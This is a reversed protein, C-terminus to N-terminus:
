AIPQMNRDMRLRESPNIWPSSLQIAMSTGAAILAGWPQPFPILLHVISAAIASWLVAWFSFRTRRLPDVQKWWGVLGMVLPFYALYAPLLPNKNQDFFGSWHNVPIDTLGQKTIESWPVMLFEALVFALAGIAFGATLQVFSRIAWDGEEVQWRKGLGIAIWAMPLAILAAWIMGILQPQAPAGWGIQFVVALASFVAIVSSAGLWSATVESWVSGRPVQALSGRRAVKWQRHSLPKNAAVPRPRPAERMPSKQPAVHAQPSASAAPQMAVPQMAYAQVHQGRQHQPQTPAPGSFLWWLCYYPVYLMLGMILMSLIAGSNIAAFVIAVVLLATKMGSNMNLEAWWRNLGIWGDRLNRAVPERYYVNAYQQADANAKPAQRFKPPEQARAFRQVPQVPPAANLVPPLKETHTRVLLYRDDVEMGLPRVMERVDSFRASPNKALARAVVERIPSAVMSLDPDATLHKMIIEQSSEGDFPVIGTALEYLMVGLAYIDIEKGYEGKGIEPAMYHFTGVSETQGGRRSCSIFKSLGYDGIKVIGEDEFINAPKLDRHVIGHDHLYAVGAAIQGFWRNLEDRPLGQPNAELADRLSVGSVYEMVIWGQEEQDFRIDFLAILNPHKLNMCQRVGRVEVDLNRQIQKLAVEKGADNTAFYVEGFGGVGVGRKITFGELPRDGNGYRYKMAKGQSPTIASHEVLESHEAENKRPARNKPCLIRIMNKRGM